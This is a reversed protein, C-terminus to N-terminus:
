VLDEAFQEDDSPVRRSERQKAPVDRDAPSRRPIRSPKKVDGVAGSTLNKYIKIRWDRSIKAKSRRRKKKKAKHRSEATLNKFIKQRQPAGLDKRSKAKNIVEELEPGPLTRVQREKDDAPVNRDAQSRHAHHSAPSKHANKYRREETLNKYIKERQSAPPQVVKGQDAQKAKTKAKHRSESTLNKYISTRQSAPLDKKNVVENLEADRPATPDTPSRGRRNKKEKELGYKDERLRSEWQLNKTKRELRRTDAEMMREKMMLMKRASRMMMSRATRRIRMRHTRAELKRTKEELAKTAADIKDDQPFFRAQTRKIYRSRRGKRALRKKMKKMKKRLPARKHELDTILSRLSRRKHQMWKWANRKASDRMSSKSPLRLRKALRNRTKQANNIGKPVGMKRSNRWAQLQGRLASREMLKWETKINRAKRRQMRHLSRLEQQRGGKILWAALAYADAGKTASDVQAKRVLFKKWEVALKGVYTPKSLLGIRRFSLRAVKKRTVNVEIANKIAGKGSLVAKDLHSLVYGNVGKYKRKLAGLINAYENVLNTKFNKNGFRTILEVIPGKKLNELFNATKDSNKVTVCYAKLARVNELTRSFHKVYRGVKHSAVIRAKRPATPDRGEQLLIEDFAPDVHHGFAPDQLRGPFVFDDNEPSEDSRVQVLAQYLAEYEGDPMRRLQGHAEKVEHEPSAGEGAHIAACAFVFLIFYQHRM